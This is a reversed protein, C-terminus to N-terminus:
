GDLAIIRESARPHNIAVVYKAMASEITQGLYVKRYLTEGTLPKVARTVRSDRDITGRVCWVRVAARSSVKGRLRVTVTGPVALVIVPYDVHRLREVELRHAKVGNIPKFTDTLTQTKFYRFM